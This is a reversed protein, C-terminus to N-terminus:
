WSTSCESSVKQISLSTLQFRKLPHAAASPYLSKVVDAHSGELQLVWRITVEVVEDGGDHGADGGAQTERTLEVRIEALKGHVHNWERTEVEEHDAKSRQGAAVGVGEAGDSNGLQGLLHVVRLVHHGSRVEAVAAVEGARGDQLYELVRPQFEASGKVATTLDGHLLNLVLHAVDLGLVAGVEDLPDGVVDLSSKAGNGRAAEAHRGGENTVGGGDLLEELTDTVLESGHETALSEQMPVSTLTHILHLESLSLAVHIIKDALVLLVLISTDGVSLLLLLNEVDWVAFHVISMGTRAELLLNNLFLLHYGMQNQISQCSSEM